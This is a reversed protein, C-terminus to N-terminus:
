VEVIKNIDFGNDQEFPYGRPNCVVKVGIPNIYDMATHTHGHIHLDFKKHIDAPIITAFGPTLPDGKYQEAVSTDPCYHTVLVNKRYSKVDVSALFDYAEKNWQILDSSEVSRDAVKIYMSDNLGYKWRHAHEKQKDYLAFDTWLTAGHFAVDGIARTSNLLTSFNLSLDNYKKYTDNLSHYENMYYEHNGMVHIVPIDEPIEIMFDLSKAGEAIDGALVVVDEGIYDYEFRNRHHLHLDSLVRIKM